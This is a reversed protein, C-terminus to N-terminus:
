NTNALFVVIDTVDDNVTKVLAYNVRNKSKPSDAHSWDIITKDSGSVYASSAVPTVVVSGTSGAGVKDKRASYDLITVSVNSDYGLDDLEDIKTQNNSTLKGLIVGNSTKDIIPGFHFEATDNGTTIGAKATASLVADFSGNQDAAAQAFVTSTFTADSALATVVSQVGATNTDLDTEDLLIEVNDVYGESNVGYIFPTGEVTPIASFSPDVLLYNVASKGDEGAEYVKIRTVSDYDETSVVGKSAYVAISNEVSKWSAGQTIIVFKYPRDGVNSREYGYAMYDLDNVLSGALGYDDAGEYSLLVTNDGLKLTGLRNTSSRYTGKADNGSSDKAAVTPTVAKKITLLNSSNVSFEVVRNQVSRKTTYQADSYLYGKAANITTTDQNRLEYAVKNGTQDVLTAYWTDGYQSYVSELIAVNASASEGEEAKVIVGFANLYLSYETGPDITGTFVNATDYYTGDIEYGLEADTSSVTGTVVNRSVLVDYYNSNNFGKNYDCAISVIDGEALATADIAEGDLTINYVKTDDDLEIELAYDLGTDYEDFYITPNLSTADSVSDVVADLYYSIMIYDYKNDTSAGSKPTDVLTVTGGVNNDFLKSYDEAITSKQVLVGNVYFQANTDLKYDTSRTQNENTFVTLKPEAASINSIVTTDVFDADAEVTQNRGSATISLIEWEEDETEAIIAEAYTFLYDPAATEGYYATIESVTRYDRDVCASIDYQGNFNNAKEVQFRVEGAEATGMKQTGSVHGSVRYADHNNTLLSQYERGDRGDMQKLVPVSQGWVNQEYGDKVLLPADLTNAILMAVQGRNLEVDNGASVGETIDLQYAYSLYGQPYGGASEAWTQYGIASVLMKVAQAYTVNADPAFTGDGMGNIFSGSSTGVTVYGAAWHTGKVDTFETDRGSAAEAEKTSGLAAVIMKTIEARTVLKDPGFTGDEYGAVVGLATLEDVAQAYNATDAVDPFGAALAVFSSASIALAAIASIVKKLNKMM